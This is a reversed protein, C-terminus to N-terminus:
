LIAILDRPLNYSTAMALWADRTEQTVAAAQIFGPYVLNFSAVGKTEIQALATPIALAIQPEVSLCATIAVKFEADQLIAANFGDWDAGSNPPTVPVGLYTENHVLQCVSVVRPHEQSYDQGVSITKRNYGRSVERTETYTETTIIPDGAESVSSVERQLEVQQNTVNLEVVVVTGDRQITIEDVSTDISIAM